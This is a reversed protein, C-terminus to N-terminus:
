GHLDTLEQWGWAKLLYGVGLLDWREEAEAKTMMDVLNQGFSWYIDRWQQAGNDSSPDYGMRDWTTLSTSVAYWQQTYRAVFRGDFQPGSVLWHLMPALYLNASVDQPANPNTNVDLFDKCGTSFALLGALAAVRVTKMQKIMMVQLSPSIRRM